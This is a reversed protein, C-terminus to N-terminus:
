KGKYATKKTDDDANYAFYSKPSLAIFRGHRAMFEVSNSLLKLQLAFLLAVNVKLSERNECTM